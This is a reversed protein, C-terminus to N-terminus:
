IPVIRMHPKTATKSPNSVCLMPKRAGEIASDMPTGSLANAGTNTAPRRPRMHPAPTRPGTASRQPRFHVITVEVKPKPRNVNRVANTVDNSSSSRNRKRVPTPRPPAIGLTTARLASYEGFRSCVIKTDISNVPMGSPATM